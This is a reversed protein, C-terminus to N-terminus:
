SVTEDTFPEPPLPTTGSDSLTAGAADNLSGFSITEVGTPTSDLVLDVADTGNASASNITIPVGDDEFRFGTEDTQNALNGSGGTFTVTVTTGSRSATSFEPGRGDTGSFYHYELMRYWRDSLEQVEANTQFHVGDGGSLDVDMLVPGALIFPDASADWQTSQALRIADLDARSVGGTNKFGLQAVVLDPAAAALFDDGSDTTTSFRLGVHQSTQNNTASDYIAYNGGVKAVILSGSVLVSIITDANDITVSTTVLTNFSGDYYFIRVNDASENILIGYFYGTAPNYRVVIGDTGATPKITARVLYDAQGADITAIWLAGGPSGGVPQVRNSALEWNGNRETWGGAEADIDPTHADLGTGDAGTFADKVFTTQYQYFETTTAYHGVLESLSEQYNAQSVSNNADTEGQHWLVARPGNIGNAGITDIMADFQTSGPQWDTPNVLGTNGDATTIFAVPFNTEAMISTALLPWPSGTAVDSDTPDALETWSDDQRFMGAKLSAHSYSQANTARGEANSQGAVVFVDGIGVNDLTAIKSTDNTWRVTLTGQGAAQGTLYGSFTNGAPAADITSYAGGNFSAEIATPTGNFYTGSIFMDAVNSDNRQFTQYAVPLQITVDNRAWSVNINDFEVDTNGSIQSLGVLGSLYTADTAQAEQVWLSGNWSYVTITTTGGNSAAIVRWKADTTTPSAGSNALLTHSYPSDPDRRHIEIRNDTNDWQILYGQDMNANSFVLVGTQRSILYSVSANFDIDVFTSSEVLDLLLDIRTADGAMNCIQGSLTAGNEVTVTGGRVLTTDAPLNGITDSEFDYLASTVSIAVAIGSLGSLGSLGSGLGGIKSM